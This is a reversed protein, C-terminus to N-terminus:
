VLMKRFDVIQGIFTVGDTRRPCQLIFLTKEYLLNELFMSDDDEYIFEQAYVLTDNIREYMYVAGSDKPITKFRTFENDFVTPSADFTTAINIDGQLSNVALQNGDFNIANGFNENQEGSPVLPTVTCTDVKCTVQIHFRPNKLHM